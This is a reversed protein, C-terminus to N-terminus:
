LPACWSFSERPPEPSLAPDPFVKTNHIHQVQQKHRYLILIMSGSSWIVLVSIEVEPCVFLTAYLLEIIKDRGTTYCYGYNTKETINESRLKGLMYLCFISNLMMHFICCLSISFGIYKPTKEKLDRWCSNRPSVTINQFISLHCIIGISVSRGVRQICSILKCGLDNLFHKMRFATMTQPVGNSLTVLTNAISLRKLILDKSRLHCKNCSLVLYYCLLFYNGLIGITTQSLFM